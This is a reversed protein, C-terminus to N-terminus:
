QRVFLFDGGEDGALHITGHEPIQRTNKMVRPRLETFLKQTNLVGTNEELLSIFVKAFVSHSGGGSDSVPELGGSTLAIRAKKKVLKQIWSPSGYDIKIGRTLEGSFCSDAVVMVHKAQMATIQNVVYDTMVWNSADDRTADVPLWYGTKNADEDYDGHGAYYILFNDEERLKKRHRRLSKLIDSRTADTLLEVEFGYDYKLVSAVKTADNIATELDPLLEYDNNGIVLAYYDGYDLNPISSSAVSTDGGLKKLKIKALAAYVGNPFQDIYARFMDPDNSDKVSQWFELDLVSKDVVVTQAQQEVIKELNSRIVRNNWLIISEEYTEYGDKEIRITHRGKPLVLSLRTSGKFQGDIYVKDDKVNSRITLSATKIVPTAAENLRKNETYQGNSYTGEIKGSAFYYIGEWQKGDKYEGVYKSGDAFTKTGQGHIKGDRWEGVYKKENAWTYTGQGHFIDDKWEGVYKDGKFEGNSFTYTGQGHMKHDKWEGVYKGGNDGNTLTYTGQGHMKSDKWEGVYKGGNPFTYTDFCNDWVGSTPCPPLAFSKGASGLVCVLVIAFLRKM